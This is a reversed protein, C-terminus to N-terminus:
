SRWRGAEMSVVWFRGQAGLFWDEKINRKLVGNMEELLKEMGGTGNWGM